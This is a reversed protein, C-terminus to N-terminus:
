CCFLKSQCGGACSIPTENLKTENWKWPFRELKNNASENDKENYKRARERAGPACMVNIVLVHALSCPLWCQIWIMIDPTDPKKTTRVCVCVCFDIQENFARQRQRSAIKHAFIILRAVMQWTQGAAGMLSYSQLNNEAFEAWGAWPRWRGAM